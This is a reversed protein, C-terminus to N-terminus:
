CRAAPMALPMATTATRGILWCLLAAWHARMSRAGHRVQVAQLCAAPLAEQWVLTETNMAISFIPLCANHAPPEFNVAAAQRPSAAAPKIGSARPAAM